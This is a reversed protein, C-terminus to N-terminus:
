QNSKYPAGANSGFDFSFGANGVANGSAGYRFSFIEGVGVNGHQRKYLSNKM